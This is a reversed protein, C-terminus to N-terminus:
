INIDSAEVAGILNSACLAPPRLRVPRELNQVSPYLLREFPLHFALSLCNVPPALQHSVSPTSHSLSISLLLSTPPSLLHSRPSKPEDRIRSTASVEPPSKSGVTVHLEARALIRPQADSGTTCFLGSSNDEFEMMAPAQIHKCKMM